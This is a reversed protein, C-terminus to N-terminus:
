ENIILTGKAMEAIFNELEEALEEIKGSYVHCPVGLKESLEDVTWDDLFLGDNNLVRPPLLVLDGLKKEKLQNYIDEAVLLGSVQISPGYWKNVIAIM